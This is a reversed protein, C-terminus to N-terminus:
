CLPARVILLPSVCSRACQSRSCRKDTIGTDDGRGFFTGGVPLETRKGDKERVAWAKLVKSTNEAVCGTLRAGGVDIRDRM